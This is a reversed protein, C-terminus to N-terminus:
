AMIKEVVWGGQLPGKGSGKSERGLPIIARTKWQRDM